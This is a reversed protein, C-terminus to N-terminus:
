PKPARGRGERGEAAPVVASTQQRLEPWGELRVFTRVFIRKGVPPKGFKAVYLETIDSRGGEPAPLWGLRTYWKGYGSVGRNCPPSGFVVVPAAPVGRVELELRIRGRRHTIRLKGVPNPCQPADQPPLKAEEKGDRLRRTNVKIFFNYGSMDRSRGAANWARREADSLAEWLKPVQGFEANWKRQEESLEKQGRGYKAPKRAMTMRGPPRTAQRAASGFRTDECLSRNGDVIRAM